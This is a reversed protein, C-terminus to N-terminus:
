SESEGSEETESAETKQPQKKELKINKNRARMEEFEADSVMKHKVQEKLKRQLDMEMKKKKAYSEKVKSDDDSSNFDDGPQYTDRKFYVTQEVKRQSKPPPPPVHDPTIESETMPKVRRPASESDSHSNDTLVTNSQRKQNLKKPSQGKDAPLISKWEKKQHQPLKDLENM